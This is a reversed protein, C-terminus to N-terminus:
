LFMAMYIPLHVIGDKVQLDKTYLIFLEGLRDGFKARFKDLSSPLTIDKVNMRISILSGTEIYDYRGDAVLAKILERAQPCRQVEDFVILTEREHLPM